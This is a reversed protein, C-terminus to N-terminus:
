KDMRAHQWQSRQEAGCWVLGCWVVGYQSCVLVFDKHARGGNVLLSIVVEVMMLANPLVRSQFAVCKM